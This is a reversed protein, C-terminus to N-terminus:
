KKKAPAKGKSTIPKTSNGGGAAKRYKCCYCLCCISCILCLVIFVGMLAGLVVMFASYESVVIFLKNTDTLPQTKRNNGAGGGLAGAKYLDLHKQKIPYITMCVTRYWKPHCPPMSNSGIYAYRNDTDFYMFAGFAISPVTPNAKDLELSDFFADVAAICKETCFFATPSDVSFLVSLAGWPLTNINM